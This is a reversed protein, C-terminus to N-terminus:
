LCIIEAHIRRPAISQGLNLRRLFWIILYYTTLKITNNLGYGWPFYNHASIIQGMAETVNNLKPNFNFCFVCELILM